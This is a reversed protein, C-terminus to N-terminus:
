IRQVSACVGCVGGGAAGVGVSVGVDVVCVFSVFEARLQLGISM